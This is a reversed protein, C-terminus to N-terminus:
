SPKVLDELVKALPSSEVFDLLTDVFGHIQERSFGVKSLIEAGNGLLTGGIFRSDPNVESVADILRRSMALCRGRAAPSSILERAVAEAMEKSTSM